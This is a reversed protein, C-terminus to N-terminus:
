LPEFGSDSCVVASPLSVLLIAGRCFIFCAWRALRHAMANQKRSAWVFSGNPNRALMDRIKLVSDLVPGQMDLDLQQLVLQCAILSDGEIIVTGDCSSPISSCALFVASLEALLPNSSLM